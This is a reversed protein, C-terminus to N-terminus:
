SPCLPTGRSVWRVVYPVYPLSVRAAQPGLLVLAQPRPGSLTVPSLLPLPQPSPLPVAMIGLLTPYLPSMVMSNHPYPGPAQPPVLRYASASAMPSSWLLPPMGMLFPSFSLLYTACPCIWPLFLLGVAPVAHLSLMVYRWFRCVDHISYLLPFPVACMARLRSLLCSDLTSLSRDHACLGISECLQPFAM